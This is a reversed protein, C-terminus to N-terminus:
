ARYAPVQLTTHIIHANVHANTICFIRDLDFAGMAVTVKQEPKLYKPVIIGNGRQEGPGSQASLLYDRRGTYIHICRSLSM